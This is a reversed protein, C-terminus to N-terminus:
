LCQLGSVHVHTAGAGRRRSRAAIQCWRSRDAHAAQPERPTRSAFKREGRLTKGVSEERTREGDPHDVHM